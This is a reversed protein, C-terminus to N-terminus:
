EPERVNDETNEEINAKEPSLQSSLGGFESPKNKRYRPDLFDVDSKSALKEIEVLMSLTEHPVGPQLAGQMGTGFKKKILFMFFGLVGLNLLSLVMLPISNDVVDAEPKVEKHPKEEPSKDEPIDKVKVIEEKNFTLISSRQHIAGRGKMTAKLEAQLQYKGPKLENASGFFLDGSKNKQLSMKTSKKKTKATLTVVVGKLGQPVEIKILVNDGEEREHAEKLSSIGLLEGLEKSSVRSLSLNQSEV